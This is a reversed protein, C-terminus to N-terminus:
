CFKELRDVWERATQPRDESKLMLGQRVLQELEEPIESNFGRLSPVIQRRISDVVDRLTTGEFPFSGASLLVYITVALGWLDTMPSIANTELVEPATFRNTVVRMQPLTLRTSGREVAAIGFDCLFARGDAEQLLINSPKVDRHVIGQMSQGTDTDKWSFGHAHDLTTAVQRMLDCVETVSLRNRPTTYRELSAGEIYDMLLYLFGFRSDGSTEYVPVLGPTGADALRQVLDAERRFRQALRELRSSGKEEGYALLEPRLIKIAVWRTSDRSRARWVQGYGGEGVRQYVHFRWPFDRYLSLPFFASHWQRLLAQSVSTDGPRAEWIVSLRPGSQGLTIVDHSQLKVSGRVLTGGIFTGQTSTLDELIYSGHGLRVIRAHLRSVGADLDPDFIIHCNPSRGLLIEEQDFVFTTPPRDKTTLAIGLTM